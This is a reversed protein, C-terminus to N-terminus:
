SFNKSLFNATKSEIDKKLRKTDFKIDLKEIGAYHQRLTRTITRVIDSARKKKLEVDIDYHIVIGNKLRVNVYNVYQIPLNTYELDGLVEPWEKVFDKALTVWTQNNKRKPKPM